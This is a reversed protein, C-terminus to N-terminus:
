REETGESCLRDALNNLVLPKELEKVRQLLELAHDLHQLQVSKSQQLWPARMYSEVLDYATAALEMPDNPDYIWRENPDPSNDPMELLTAMNRGTAEPLIKHNSAAAFVTRETLM